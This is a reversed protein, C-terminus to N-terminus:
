ISQFTGKPMVHAIAQKQIRIEVGEAITLLLFDDGVRSIKGLIGGNTTVEDGKALQSLLASHAKARKNQPRLIFFYFIVFFGGLLVLQGMAGSMGGQAEAPGSALAPSASFLVGCLAACLPQYRM